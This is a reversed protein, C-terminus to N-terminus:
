ELIVKRSEVGESTYVKILYTGKHLGEMNISTSNSYISEESIKQGVINYIEIKEISNISELYVRDKSPNPYIKLESDSEGEKMSSKFPSDDDIVIAQPDVCERCNFSFATTPYYFRATVKQVYSMYTHDPIDFRRIERITLARKEFKSEQYTDCDTNVDESMSTWQKFFHIKAPPSSWKFGVGVVFNPNLLCVDSIMYSSIDFLREKALPYDDNILEDCFVKSLQQRSTGPSKSRLIFLSEDEESYELDTIYHNENYSSHISLEKLDKDFTMIFGTSGGNTSIGNVSVAINGKNISKVLPLKLDSPKLQQDLPIIRQSRLNKFGGLVDFTRIGFNEHDNLFTSVVYVQSNYPDFTMDELREDSDLTLEDYIGSQIRFIVPYTNLLKGIGIIAIPGYLGTRCVTIKNIHSFNYMEYQNFQASLLPLVGFLVDLDIISILPVIVGNVDKNHLIYLNYRNNPIDRFVQIDQINQISYDVLAAKRVTFDVNILQFKYDGNVLKVCSLFATDNVKRIFTNTSPIADSQGVSVDTAHLYSTTIPLCLPGPPLVQSNAAFGLGLLIFSLLLKKM